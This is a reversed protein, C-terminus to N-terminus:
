IFETEPVVAWAVLDQRYRQRIETLLSRLLGASDAPLQIAICANQFPSTPSSYWQGYFGTAHRAMASHFESLFNAWEQQTLKNDSNGISAYVTITDTM